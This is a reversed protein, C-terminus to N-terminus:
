TPYGGTFWWLHPFDMFTWWKWIMNRSNGHTKGHNKWMNERRIWPDCPFQKGGPPGFWDWTWRWSPRSTKGAATPCSALPAESNVTDCPGIHIHRNHVINTIVDYVYTYIYINNYIYIYTIIYICICTIIYIYIYIYM